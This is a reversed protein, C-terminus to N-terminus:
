RLMIIIQALIYKKTKNKYNLSTPTFFISFLCVLCFLPPHPHCISVNGSLPPATTKYISVNAVLPGGNKVPM